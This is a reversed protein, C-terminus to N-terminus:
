PLDVGEILYFDTNEDLWILGEAPGGDLALPEMHERKEAIKFAAYKGVINQIRVADYVEVLKFTPRTPINTEVAFNKDFYYDLHSVDGNSLIPYMALLDSDKSKKIEVQIFGRTGIECDQCKKLEGGLPGRVPGLEEVVRYRKGNHEIIQETM